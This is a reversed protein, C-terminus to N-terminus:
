SVSKSIVLLLKLNWAPFIVGTKLFGFCGPSFNSFVEDLYRKPTLEDQLFDQGRLLLFEHFSGIAESFPNDDFRNGLERDNSGLDPIRWNVFKRINHSLAGHKLSSRTTCVLVNLV